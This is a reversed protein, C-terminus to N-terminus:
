HLVTLEIADLRAIERGALGAVHLKLVEKDITGQRERLHRILVIALPEGVTLHFSGGFRVEEVEGGFGFPAIYHTDFELTHQVGVEGITTLGDALVTLFIGVRHDVFFSVDPAVVDEVIVEVVDTGTMEYRAHVIEIGLLLVEKGHLGHHFLQFVLGAGLDVLYEPVLGDIGILYPEVTDEHSQGKTTQCGRDRLVFGRCRDVIISDVLQLDGVLTGEVRLGTQVTMGIVLGAVGEPGVLLCSERLM